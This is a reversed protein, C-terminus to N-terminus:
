SSHTLKLGIISLILCFLFFVRWFEASEGFYIIGIVATGFAGIGTWVAYATGLPISKLSLALSTFSCVALLLFIVSPWFHKFGESRKLFTTFGIEFLGAIMLYLWAM